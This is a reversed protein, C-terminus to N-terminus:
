FIAGLFDEDGYFDAEDTLATVGAQCAMTDIDQFEAETKAQKEPISLGHYYEM